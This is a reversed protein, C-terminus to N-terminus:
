FKKVQKFETESKPISTPNATGHTNKVGSQNRNIIGLSLSSPISVAEMFASDSSNRKNVISASLPLKNTMMLNGTTSECKYTLSMQAMKTTVPGSTSFIIADPHLDEGIGSSNSSGSGNLLRENTIPSSKASSSSGGVPVHGGTESNSDSNPTASLSTSSPSASSTSQNSSSGHTTMSPANPYMNTNEDITQALFKLVEDFQQDIADIDTTASQLQPHFINSQNKAPNISPIM